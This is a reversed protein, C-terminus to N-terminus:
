TCSQWFVVTGLEAIPNNWYAIASLTHERYSKQFLTWTELAILQLMKLFCSLSYGNNLWYFWWGHSFSIPIWSFPFPAHHNKKQSVTAIFDYSNRQCANRLLLLILTVFLRWRVSQALSLITNHCCLSRKWRQIYHNFNAKCNCVRHMPALLIYYFM